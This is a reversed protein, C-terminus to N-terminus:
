NLWANLPKIRSIVFKDLLFVVIISIGLLPMLIGLALMIFFITTTIKKNNASAIAGFKGNPKRKRWMIFSNICIFILGLCVILGIIQNALGFLRGEHLAIGLEIAQAVIGYENFRVDSLINGSYQDVHITANNTPSSQSTAITYVGTEGQPYSITYPKAINQTEALAKVSDITLIGNENKVSAPVDLNESAWPVDKAIDKAKVNSEPKEGWSYAYLPADTNTATAFKNINEGMIGSWPLGTAILILIFLSLWFAPVAHLDRWFTRGKANWRPLITGWISAKNRPWWLYLGTILLVVCWCAALEVIRNALTGGIILESHLKKFIETFKEEKKLTGNIEGSYPNVYTSFNKGDETAVGFETTRLPNDYETVYTITANSFKSTVKEAQDSLSLTNTGEQQVYYLDKYLSNEIQPKFLYVAGSFALIILFPTFILGAYFHWRWMTKFLSSQDKKNKQQTSITEKIHVTM